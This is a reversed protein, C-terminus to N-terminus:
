TSTIVMPVTRQTIKLMNLYLLLLMSWRIQMVSDRPGVPDAAIPAEPVLAKSSKSLVNEIRDM